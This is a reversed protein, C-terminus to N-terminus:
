GHQRVATMVSQFVEVAAGDADFVRVEGHSGFSDGGFVGRQSGRVEWGRRLGHDFEFRIGDGDREWSIAGSFGTSTAVEGKGDPAFTFVGHRTVTRRSSQELVTVSWKGALGAEDSLRRAIDARLARKDVKGIATVPLSDLAVLREPQKFRAAGAQEMVARVDDATVTAGPRCVVYLCVREGLQRDPMGVAAAMAVGATRYAFEEVEEASIKEGGRNILDKERGEVVLNGDPRLRVIDGTRYWGDATFARANEEDARYYGRITYPGRTLLLGAEGPAVPNGDDDVVAIEDAPSLPQGQTAVRVEEPADIRTTCVLGEAMGYGHQLTCGLEPGIRAAVAEAMPAGGVMLVRLSGLDTAQDEARRDLWRTVIAPVAAAITVREREIAAFADAAATFSGVVVRGGALLTALVGGLQFNHSMPLVALNVTDPGFRGSKGCLKLYYAFDDHTRAILKPKGTTGGSLLFLAIARSDAPAPRATRGVPESLARLDLNGDRVTTGAVLVHEITAVKGAVARALDQKRGDVDSVVLARAEATEAIGAIEHEGHAPLALVPLVGSRFCALMLVVLEWCNPLQAVIRDDANLGREELHAALTEARALLDRFTLRVAGDVVAIEDPRASAAEAFHEALTRGEWYGEGAYRAVADDPWPTFGNSSPQIPTSAM